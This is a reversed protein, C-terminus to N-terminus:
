CFFDLIKAYVIKAAYKGWVFDIHNFQPSDCVQVFALTHNLKAILRGVDKPITFKDIPSYHFSIPTKINSLEFDKPVESGEMFKGFFRYNM